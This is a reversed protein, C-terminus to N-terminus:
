IGHLAKEVMIEPGASIVYFLTKINEFGNALIEALIKVDDKLEIYKCAQNLVEKTVKGKYDPDNAILYALEGGAQVVNEKRLKSIKEKYVYRDIGISQSLLQGTENRSLTHDFDSAILFKKEM